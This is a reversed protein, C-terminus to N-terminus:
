PNKTSSQSGAIAPSDVCDHWAKEVCTHLEKLTEHNPIIRTSRQRKEESSLQRSQRLRLNEVTWGRRESEALQISPATDIYWIEDCQDAWGSEFLLPVDLVAAVANSQKAAALQQSITQRTLPHILSELYILGRRSFDDDGFVLGALKRRDIKGEQDLISSGFYATVQAAIEPTQLVQHAIRDANIWTAGLDALQAAVTSKGGAPVSAIGIVIM